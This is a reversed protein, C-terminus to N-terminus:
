IGKAIKGDILIFPVARRLILRTGKLEDLYHFRREKRREIIRRASIPGIGPVRLLEELPATNVEVPFYEPHKLAWSLKPDHSSPLNGNEDFVLEKFRFGYFRLLFDAQYLRHERILPTPPHAELPTGEIPQFASFYVRWLRMVRYLYDVTKLIEYDTEEGGGVVFQTTQSRAMGFGRNILDRAREMPKLLDKLSSKEPAIRKLRERTPAELNLSVRNAVRVAEDVYEPDIGPLLKLHIYGKFRYRQRIILTAKLMDEMVRNPRDPIASSLFLGHVLGGRVLDMFIKALEDPRFGIPQIERGAQNPCYICRNHCRNHMLIKLIPVSKGDPLAAPYIWKTASAPRRGGGICSSLCVDFRADESLVEIKKALDM